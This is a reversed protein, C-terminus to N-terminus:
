IIPLMGSEYLGDNTIGGITVKEIRNAQRPRALAVKLYNDSLAGDELTVVSLTRALMSRRFEINKRQALNRLV